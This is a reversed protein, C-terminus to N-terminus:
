RLCLSGLWSELSTILYMVMKGNKAYGNSSKYFQEDRHQKRTTAKFDINAFSIVDTFTIIKCILPWVIASYSWNSTFDVHVIRKKSLDGLWSELSTILYM